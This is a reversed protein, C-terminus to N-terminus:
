ISYKGPESIIDAKPFRTSFKALSDSIGDAIRCFIKESESHGPYGGGIDLLSFEYGISLAYDFLETSM